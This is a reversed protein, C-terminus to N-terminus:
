NIRSQSLYRRQVRKGNRECVLPGGSYGHCLGEVWDACMMGLTVNRGHMEATACRRAEVPKVQAALMEVNLREDGCTGWGALTCRADGEAGENTASPLCVPQVHEGLEITENLRMVAVDHQSKSHQGHRFQPHLWIKAVAYSRQTPAAPATQSHDGVRVLWHEPDKYSSFCHAATLIHRLGVIAGGCNHVSAGRDHVRISVQWPHHGLRAIRLQREGGSLLLNDRHDHDHHITNEAM